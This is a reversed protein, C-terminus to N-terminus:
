IFEAEIYALTALRRYTTIDSSSFMKDEMKKIRSNIESTINAERIIKVINLDQITDGVSSINYIRVLKDLFKPDEFVHPLDGYYYKVSLDFKGLFCGNEKPTFELYAETFDTFQFRDMMKKRAEEGRKQSENVLDIYVSDHLAGIGLTKQRVPDPSVLVIPTDDALLHPTILCRVFVVGDNILIAGTDLLNKAGEKFWRSLNSVIKENEKNIVELYKLAKELAEKNSSSHKKIILVEELAEEDSNKIEWSVMGHSDVVLAELSGILAGRNFKQSKEPANRIPFITAHGEEKLISSISTFVENFDDLNMHHLIRISLTDPILIRDFSNKGFPLEPFLSSVLSSSKIDKKGAYRQLLERKYIHEKQYIRMESLGNERLGQSYERLEERIKKSIPIEKLSDTISQAALMSRSLYVKIDEDTTADKIEEIFTSIERITRVVIDLKNDYEPDSGEKRSYSLTLATSDIQRELEIWKENLSSINPDKKNSLSSHLVYLGDMGLFLGDYVKRVDFINSALKGPVFDTETVVIRYREALETRQDIWGVILTKQQDTGILENSSLGTAAMMQDIPKVTREFDSYIIYKVGFREKEPLSSEM